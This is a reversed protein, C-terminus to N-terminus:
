NSWGIRRNHTTARNRGPVEAHSDHRTGARQKKKGPRDHGVRKREVTGIKWDRLSSVMTTM